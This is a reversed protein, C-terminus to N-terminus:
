GDCRIAGVSKKLYSSMERAAFRVVRDAKTSIIISILSKKNDALLFSM